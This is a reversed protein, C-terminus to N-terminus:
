ILERLDSARNFVFDPSVGSQAVDGEDADGTLVCISTIGESDAMRLETSLRDGVIVMDEPSCGSRRYIPEIMVPDPKGLVRSPARGTATELLATISGCDPINGEPTPCFRDPHAAVFEAGQELHLCAERLKQYTLEKDFGVVVCEPQEANPNVGSHAIEDRMAKTGLVYVDQIDNELLYTTVSDTSLVINNETAPIGMSELRRVYADKRKSSNNSLFYVDRGSERLRELTEAVGEIPRDGLYITGDLDFVFATKEGLLQAQM